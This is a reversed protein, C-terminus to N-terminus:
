KTQWSGTEAEYKSSFKKWFSAFANADYHLALVRYLRRFVVREQISVNCDNAQELLWKM